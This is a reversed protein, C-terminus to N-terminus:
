IISVANSIAYTRIRGSRGNNGSLAEVDKASADLQRQTRFLQLTGQMRGDYTLGTECRVDALAIRSYEALRLMRGKNRAYRSSTCNALMRFMVKVREAWFKLNEFILIATPFSAQFRLKQPAQASVPASPATILLALSAVLTAFAHRMKDRELQMTAKSAASEVGHTPLPLM